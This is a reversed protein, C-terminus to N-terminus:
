KVSGGSERQASYKVPAFFVALDDRVMGPISPILGDLVAGDRVLSLQWATEARIFQENWGHLSSYTAPGWTDQARRPLEQFSYIARAPAIESVGGESVLAEFVRPERGNLIVVQDLRGQTGAPIDVSWRDDRWRYVVKSRGFPTVWAGNEMGVSVSGGSPDSAFWLTSLAPGAAQEGHLVLIKGSLTAQQTPMGLAL